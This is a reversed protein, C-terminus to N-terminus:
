SITMIIHYKINAIIQCYNSLKLQLYLTITIGVLHSSALTYPYSGVRTVLVAEPKETSQGNYVRIRRRATQSTKLRSLKRLLIQLTSIEVEDVFKTPFIIALPISQM